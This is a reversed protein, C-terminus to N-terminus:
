DCYYSLSGMKGYTTANSDYIPPDFSISVLKGLVHVFPWNQLVLTTLQMAVLESASVLAVQMAVCCSNVVPCAM